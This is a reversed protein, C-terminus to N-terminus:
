EASTLPFGTRLRRAAITSLGVGERSLGEILDVADAAGSVAIGTLLARVDAEDSPPGEISPQAGVLGLAVMLARRAYQEHPACRGLAKTLVVPDRLVRGLVTAGAQLLSRSRPAELTEALASLVDVRDLDAVIRM